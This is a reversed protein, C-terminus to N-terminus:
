MCAIGGCGRGVQQIGSSKPSTVTTGDYNDRNISWFSTSRMWPTTAAFNTVQCADDLTFVQAPLLSNCPSM